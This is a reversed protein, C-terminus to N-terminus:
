GNRKGSGPGPVPILIAQPWIDRQVADCRAAIVPALMFRSTFPASSTAPVARAIEAAGAMGAVAAALPLSVNVPVM